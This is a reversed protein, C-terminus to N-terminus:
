GTPGAPPIGPDFQEVHAGHAQERALTLGAVILTALCLPLVVGPWSWRLYSVATLPAAAAGGIYYATLYRGVAARGLAAAAGSHAVHLSVTGCIAGAAALALAPLWPLLGALMLVISICATGLIVTRRGLRDIARGAVVGTVTAPVFVLYILDGLLPPLHFPPGALRYPLLDFMGVSVFLIFAGPAILLLSARRRAVDTGPGAAAAVAHPLTRLSPLVAFLAGAAGILFAGRWSVFNGTYGVLRGGLGGLATGSIMAGTVQGAMAAPVHRPVNALGGAILLGIGVGQGARAVLLLWVDPSAAAGLSALITLWTARRM